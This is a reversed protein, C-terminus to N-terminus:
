TRDETSSWSTSLLAIEALTKEVAVKVQLFKCRPSQHVSRYITAAKVFKDQLAFPQMSLDLCDHHSVNMWKRCFCVECVVLFIVLYLCQLISQVLRFFFGLQFAELCPLGTASLISYLLLFCREVGDKKTCLYLDRKKAPTQPKDFLFPVLLSTISLRLMLRNEKSCAIEVPEISVSSARKPYRERVPLVGSFEYLAVFRWRWGKERRKNGPFPKSDNKRDGQGCNRSNAFVRIQRAAHYIARRKSKRMSSMVCICSPFRKIFPRFLFKQVNLLLHLGRHSSM